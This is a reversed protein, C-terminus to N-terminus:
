VRYYLQEGAPEGEPVGLARGEHEGPPPLYRVWRRMGEKVLRGEDVLHKLRYQLTRLVIDGELADQIDQIAIGEPHASVVAEIAKLEQEPMPKAM